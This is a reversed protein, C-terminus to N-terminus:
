PILRAKAREFEEDNLVGKDHLDSLTKLESVFKGKKAERARLADESETIISLVESASNDESRGRGARILRQKKESNTPDRRFEEIASSFDREKAFQLAGLIVIIAIVVLVVLGM